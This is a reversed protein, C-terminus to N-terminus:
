ACHLRNLYTPHQIRPRTYTDPSFQTVLMIQLLLVYVIKSVWCVSVSANLTSCHLLNLFFFFRTAGTCSPFNEMKNKMKMIQRTFTYIGPPNSFNCPSEGKRGQHKDKVRSLERERESQKRIWQERVKTVKCESNVWLRDMGWLWNGDEKGRDAEWHWLQGTAKKVMIGQSVGWRWKKLWALAGDVGM